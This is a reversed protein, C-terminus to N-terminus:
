HRRQYILVMASRDEIRQRSGQDWPWVSSDSIDFWHQMDNPDRVLATYHGGSLSGAHRSVGTLDYIGSSEGAFGAPNFEIPYSVKANNKVLRRDVQDFRKFQIVIIPAFRVVAMQRVCGRCCGCEQCVLLSDDTMRQPMQWAEICKELTVQLDKPLPLAWQVLPEHNKEVHGCSYSFTTVTEGHFLRVIESDNRLRHLRMGSLEQLDKLSVQRTAVASQNLDEHLSDLLSILFEGSDHQGWDAFIPYCRGVAQKVQAPSVAGTSSRLSRLLRCYADYVIGKSGYPNLRNVQSDGLLYDTLPKVRVLCQLAANLYCSNGINTLGPPGSPARHQGRRAVFRAGDPGSPLSSLWCTLRMWRTQRVDPSDQQQPSAAAPQAREPPRSEGDRNQSESEPRSHSGPDDGSQHTQRSHDRQQTDIPDSTQDDAEISPASLPSESQKATDPPKKLCRKGMAFNQGVISEENCSQSM